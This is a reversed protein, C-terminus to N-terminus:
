WSRSRLPLSEIPIQFQSYILLITYHKHVLLEVFYQSAGPLAMWICAFYIGSDLASRSLAILDLMDPAQRNPFNRAPLLALLTVIIGITFIDM